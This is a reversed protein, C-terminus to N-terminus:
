CGCTLAVAVVVTLGQIVELVGALTPPRRDAVPERHGPVRRRVALVAGAAAARCGLHLRAGDVRREARGELRGSPFALLLHLLLSVAVADTMAGLAWLLGSDFLQLGSLAVM